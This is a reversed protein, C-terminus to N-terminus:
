TIPRASDLHRMAHGRAQLVHSCAHSAVRRALIARTLRYLAVSDLRHSLLENIREAAFAVGLNTYAMVWINQREEENQAQTQIVEDIRRVIEPLREDGFGSLPSMAATLVNGFMEDPNKEWMRAM